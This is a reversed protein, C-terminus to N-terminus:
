FRGVTLVRWSYSLGQSVPFGGVTLVRWSYSLGQSVWFEGVTAVRWSDLSALQRVVRSHSM